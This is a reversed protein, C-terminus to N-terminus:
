SFTIIPTQKRFGKTQFALFIIGVIMWGGGIIFTKAPLNLWILLCMFFGIAAPLFHLFFTSMTRKKAKFYYERISAINVAMFAFFAGFNILRACEEYNFLLSGLLTIIGIIIINYNPVFYHKDIHGFIKKPIIGDRGMGYLLRSAGIQATIGSGVSALLLVITLSMDLVHGGVRHAVTM